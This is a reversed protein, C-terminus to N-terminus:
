SVGESEGPVRGHVGGAAWRAAWSLAATETRLRADALCIPFFGATEFRKRERVNFGGAPGIAGIALGALLAEPGTSKGGSDALWCSAGPEVQELAAEVPLPPRVEMLFARRSQRLAGIALRNWREVRAAGAPWSSGEGELPQFREVGLEALKEVLWDARGREPAGCWAWARRGRESREVSIVDARVEGGVSALRLRARVGRGDTATAYDGPRARCVRALYHAEDGSLLVVSGPGGLDPAYLLSPPEGASPM